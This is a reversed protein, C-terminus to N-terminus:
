KLLRWDPAWILLESSNLRGEHRKYSGSDIFWLDNGSSSKRAAAWAAESYVVANGPAALLENETMKKELGNTNGQGFTTYGLPTAM